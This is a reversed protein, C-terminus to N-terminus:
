PSLRRRSNVPSHQRWVVALPSSMGILWDIQCLGNRLTNSWHRSACNSSTHQWVRVMAMTDLCCYEKLAAFGNIHDDARADAMMCALWRESAEAGNHVGLEAYSLEPAVVPLVVKISSSGNFDPHIYHHKSVCEMLDVMRDNLGFLFAADALVCSALENNRSREFSANWVVVSGHDGIDRRLQAVLDPIPNRNRETALFERHTLTGFEDMVHLSYQFPIQQYPWCGDFPPIPSSATKYDLFYLPFVYENLLRRLDDHDLRIRGSQHAEVQHRQGDTLAVDEPWDRLDVIGRLAVEYAKKPSLRQLDYISGTAPIEPHFFAFTPCHQSRPQLHCNCSTPPDFERLRTMAQEMQGKIEPQLEPVNETVDVECFLAMPDCVGSRRYTRDLHLLSVGAIDFGAAEYAALQFAADVSHDKDLSTVSKVEIIRWASGNRVLMDARALYGDVSWAVAQFVVSADEALLEQTQDLAESPNLSSVLKGEPFWARALRDIMNGEAIRRKAGPDDEEPVRWREHKAIWCYSPCIRFNLFDTKSLYLSDMLLVGWWARDM